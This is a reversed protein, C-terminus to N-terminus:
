LVVAPAKMEHRDGSRIAEFGNSDLEFYVLCNVPETREAGFGHPYLEFYGLCNVPETGEAGFRKSGTQTSNSNYSAAWHTPVPVDFAHLGGEPEEEEAVHRARKWM